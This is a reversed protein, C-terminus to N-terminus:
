DWDSATSDHELACTQLNQTVLLEDEQATCTVLFPSRPRYRCADNAVTRLMVSAPSPLSLMAVRPPRLPLSAQSDKLKSLKSVSCWSSYRRTSPVSASSTSNYLFADM